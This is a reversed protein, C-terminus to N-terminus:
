RGTSRASPTSRPGGTRSSTFAVEPEAVPVISPADFTYEKVDSDKMTQLTIRTCGHLYEHRGVATGEFGTVVDRYKEGLRIEAEDKKRGM